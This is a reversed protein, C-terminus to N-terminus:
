IQWAMQAGITIMRPAPALAEKRIPATPASPTQYAHRTRQRQSAERMLHEALKDNGKRYERRSREILSSIHQESPLRNSISPVVVPESTYALLDAATVSAQRMLRDLAPTQTHAPARRRNDNDNRANQQRKRQQEQNDIYHWWAKLIIKVNERAHGFYENDFHAALRDLVDLWNSFPNYDRQDSLYYIIARCKRCKLAGNWTRHKM